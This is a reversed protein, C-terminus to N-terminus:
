TEFRVFLFLSISCFHDFFSLVGEFAREVIRSLMDTGRRPYFLSYYFLVFSILTAGQVGLLGRLCATTMPHMDVLWSYGNDLLGARKV